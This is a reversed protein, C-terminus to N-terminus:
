YVGTLKGIESNPTVMLAAPAIARSRIGASIGLSQLAKSFSEEQLDGFDRSLDDAALVDVELGSYYDGVDQSNQTSFCIPAFAYNKYTFVYMGVPKGYTNEGVLKVNMYPKLGNIVLESSSATAKTGIFAVKTIGQLAFPNDEFKVTSDLRSQTANHVFKFFTKSSNGHGIIQSALQTAVTTLGGGNYRLDVVLEEVGQENFYQFANNLEEKSNAIFSQFALYGVNKGGVNLVKKVLVSNFAVERKTFTAEHVDGNLDVLRFTASVGANAPGLLSALNTSTPVSGNIQTISWGRTVGLTKLPSDNFIYAIRLNSQADFALSFGFGVYVGRNFYDDYEQKTMVFSYRDVEKYKIAELLKYPDSYNTPDINPIKDYWLYYSKMAAYLQTNADQDATLEDDKSCGLFGIVILAMILFPQVRLMFLKKM